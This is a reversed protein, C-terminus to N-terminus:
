EHIVQGTADEEVSPDVQTEGADTDIYPKAGAVWDSWVAGTRLRHFESGDPCYQVQMVDSSSGIARTIVGYSKYGNLAQTSTVGVHLDPAVMYDIDILNSVHMRLVSM